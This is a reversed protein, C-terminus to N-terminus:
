RLQKMKDDLERMSNDIERMSKDVESAANACMAMYLLWVACGVAGCILGALAMNRGGCQGKKVKQLAVVSLIGGVVSPVIGFYWTCPMASIAVGAIGVVMGAISLGKPLDTGPAASGKVPGRIGASVSATVGDNQRVGCNPCIEATKRIVEGCSECFKEDAAKKPKTPVVTAVTAAEAVQLLLSTDLVEAASPVTMSQGCSCKATRGALEDKVRYKKGCGSCTLAISM